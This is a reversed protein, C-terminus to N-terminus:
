LLSWLFPPKYSLRLIAKEQRKTAVSEQPARTLIHEQWFHAHGSSSTINLDELIEILETQLSYASRSETGRMARPADRALALYSCRDFRFCRPTSSSEDVRQERTGGYSPREAVPVGQYRAGSLFVTSALITIPRVDADGGTWCRRRSMQRRSCVVWRSRADTM